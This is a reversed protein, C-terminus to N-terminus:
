RSSPRFRQVGPARAPRHDADANPRLVRDAAFLGHDKALLAAESRDRGVALAADYAGGKAGCARCKWQGTDLSVSCSPSRDDHKHQEPSAFCRVSVNDSTGSGPLSIGLAAYFGRADPTTSPM